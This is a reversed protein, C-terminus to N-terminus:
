DDGQGKGMPKALKRIGFLDDLYENIMVPKSQLLLYVEEPSLAGEVWSGKSALARCMQGLVGSASIEEWPIVSGNRQLKPMTVQLATAIVDRVLQAQLFKGLSSRGHSKVSEEFAPDLYAVVCDAFRDQEHLDGVVDVFLVSNAHLGYDKRVKDSLKAWDFDFANGAESRVEVVRSDLWTGKRYPYPFNGDLTENLALFLEVEASRGPVLQPREHTPIQFEPVGQGSLIKDLSKRYFVRLSKTQPCRLMAVFDAKDPAVRCNALATHLEQLHQPTIEWRMSIVLPQYDENRLILEESATWAGQNKVRFEVESLVGACEDVGEYPRQIEALDATLTTV